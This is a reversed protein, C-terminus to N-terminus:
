TRDYRHEKEMPNWRGRLYCILFLAFLLLNHAIMCGWAAVLRGGLFATCLFTGVIRVGWMGLINYVFPERTNGVGLMMGEIIISFGYAPESVAVMRLVATGLGIVEESDSFIDMLAPAAAFLAGGSLIMLAVEIPIFM